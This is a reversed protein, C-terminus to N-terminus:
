GALTRECGAEHTAPFRALAKVESEPRPKVRASCLGALKHDGTPDFRSILPRETVQEAVGADFLVALDVIRGPEHAPAVDENQWRELLAAREHGILRSCAATYEDHRIPGARMAGGIDVRENM